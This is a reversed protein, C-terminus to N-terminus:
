HGAAGALGLGRPAPRPRRRPPRRHAARRRDRRDPGAAARGHRLRTRPQTPCPGSGRLRPLVARDHHGDPGGPRETVILLTALPSSTVMLRRHPAELGRSRAARPSCWCCRGREEEGARLPGGEARHCACIVGLHRRPPPADLLLYGTVATRDACPGA